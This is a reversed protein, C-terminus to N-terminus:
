LKRAPSPTVATNCLEVAVARMALAKALRPNIGKAAASATMSPASTPVVSTAWSSDSLIAQSDESNMKTPTTM